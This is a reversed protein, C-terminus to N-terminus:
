AFALIQGRSDGLMVATPTLLKRAHGKKVGAHVLGLHLPKRILSTGRYRPRPPQKKDALNGTAHDQKM